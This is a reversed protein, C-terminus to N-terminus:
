AVGARSTSSIAIELFGDPELGVEPFHTPPRALM